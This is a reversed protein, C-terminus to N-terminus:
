RPNGAARLPDLKMGPIMMRISILFTWSGPSISKESVSCGSIFSVSFFFSCLSTCPLGSTSFSLSSFVFSYYPKWQGPWIWPSLMCRTRKFRYYRTLPTSYPSTKDQLAEFIIKSTIFINVSLMKM